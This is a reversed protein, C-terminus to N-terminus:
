QSGLNQITKLVVLIDRHVNAMELCEFVNTTCKGELRLLAELKEKINADTLHTEIQPNHPWAWGQERWWDELLQSDVLKTIAEPVLAYNEFERRRWTLPIFDPYHKNEVNKQRLTQDDVNNPPLDDRDRLSVARLGAIGGLLAKYIKLRDSHTDTTPMIALNKPFPIGCMVSLIKLREEDNKAEVFLIAKSQMAPDFLPSFRDGLGSLLHARGIDSRLFTPSKSGFNLIKGYPARKLIEPAHTAVLMQPGKDSESISELSEFLSIKLSTFLHADPEDLLLINTAPALAFTLVTLWQQVGAGEVMLDRAVGADIWAANQRHKPQVNVRIVAHFNPEFPEVSLELDFEHRTLENLREWPDIKKFEELAKLEAKTRKRKGPGFIAERNEKSTNCLDLLFNRLVSGALGRGLMARRKALTAFEERADLGAVPPVYVVEPIRSDLSLNSDKAKIYLRDQVLSFAMTLMRPVSLASVSDQHEDWTVTISMSYGQGPGASKLNLWLHQLDPINIPTFDDRSIGAGQGSYGETIAVKGKFRQVVSVGFAWVALAHLLTSKGHNNPGACITLGKPNLQFKQDKFRKFNQVRVERLM